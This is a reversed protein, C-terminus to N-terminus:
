LSKFIRLAKILRKFRFPNMLIRWIWELGLSRLSKPSRKEVGTVFDLGGGVGIAFRYQDPFLHNYRSIFREQKPSGLAIFIFDSGALRQDLNIEESITGTATVDISIIEFVLNPYKSTIIQTNKDLSQGDGGIIKVVLNRAEAYALTKSIIDAGSMVSCRSAVERKLLFQYIFNSDLTTVFDPFIEEDKREVFFHLFIEVNVTIIKANSLAFLHDYNNIDPKFERISQM